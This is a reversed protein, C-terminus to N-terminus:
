DRDMAIDSLDHIIESVDEKKDAGDVLARVIDGFYRKIFEGNLMEHANNWDEMTFEERIADIIEQSPIEDPNRDM